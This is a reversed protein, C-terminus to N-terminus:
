TVTGGLVDNGDVAPADGSNVEPGGTPGTGACTERTSVVLAIAGWPRTSAPAVEVDLVLRNRPPLPLPLSVELATTGPAPRAIERGNLHASVLGGVDALRLALCERTSDLPPPGFSRVLRVALASGAEEPWTIPLTVRPGSSTEPLPPLVVPDLLVWGGRLRILHEPM